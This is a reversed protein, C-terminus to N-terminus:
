RPKSVLPAVHELKKTINAGIKFKHPSSVMKNELCDKCSENENINLRKQISKGPHGFKEHATFCVIKDKVSTYKVYYLDNDQDVEIIRDNGRYVECRKENAPFNIAFGQKQLLPISLVNLDFNPTFYVKEIQVCGYGNGFNFMITGSTNCLLNYDKIEENEAQNVFLTRNCLLNLLIDNDVLPQCFQKMKLLILFCIVIIVAILQHETDIKPVETTESQLLKQVLNDYDLKNDNQISRIVHSFKKRDMATLLLAKLFDNIVVSDQDKNIEDVKGEFLNIFGQVNRSVYELKMIEELIRMKKSIPIKVNKTM